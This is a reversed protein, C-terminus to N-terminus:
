ARLVEAARKMHWVLDVKHPCAARAATFDYRELERAGAPMMAFRSKAEQPDGYVDHYMLYRMTDGIRLPGDVHAGCIHDCGDCALSRTAKAYRRLEDVERRSLKTKDLAAAINQRLKTLTDMASVAATIRPDAWVAKLVAQHQTYRGKKQFPEWRGKFSAAAGQTKMAILGIGAKHAADMAKNLAKEGYTRFNYRFMIADIWPLKSARTLLDAVNSHHCSFGFFRMKGEAKLKAVLKEMSANLVSPDQLMHLFYLDIYSTRLKKLSRAFVRSFGKVDHEDSKSTIWLKKRIKARSHFNGVAIESRGGAYCDATDIYNVGYRYAEALRPDFVPDFNMSGGMLLIPIKQKTKGLVRRPVQAVKKKALAEEPLLPGLALSAGATAGLTILERRSLDLKSM